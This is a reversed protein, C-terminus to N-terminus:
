AQAVATRRVASGCCNTALRKKAIISKGPTGDWTINTTTEIDLNARHAALDVDLQQLHAAKTHPDQRVGDLMMKLLPDFLPPYHQM